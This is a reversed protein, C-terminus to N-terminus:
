GIRWNNLMDEVIGKADMMGYKRFDIVQVPIDTASKIEDVMFRIQPGVLIVDVGELRDKLDGSAIATVKLEGPRVEEMKKALIGTSMGANCVLLVNTM